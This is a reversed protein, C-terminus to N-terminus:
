LLQAPLRLAAYFAANAKKKKKKISRFAPTHDAIAGHVCSRLSQYGQVTNTFGFTLTAGICNKKKFRRSRTGIRETGTSQFTIETLVICITAFQM